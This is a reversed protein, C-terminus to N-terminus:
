IKEVRGRKYIIIGDRLAEAVTISKDRLRVLESPTLPIFTADRPKDWLRYLLSLREEVEMGQWSRSVIIFDLDSDEVHDGRAVSGFLVIYEVTVGKRELQDALEEAWKEAKELLKRWRLKRQELLEELRRWREGRAGGASLKM